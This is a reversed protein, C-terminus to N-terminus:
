GLHLFPECGHNRKLPTRLKHRLRGTIEAIPHTCHHFRGESLRVRRAECEDAGVAGVHSPGHKDDPLPHPIFFNVSNKTRRQVTAVVKQRHPTWTRLQKSVDGPARLVGKAGAKLSCLKGAELNVEQLALQTVNVGEVIELM